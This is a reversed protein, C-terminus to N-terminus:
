MQVHSSSFGYTQSYPGKDAFHHKQKKIHWLNTMARRGLLLYRKIEHSCDSNVTIQLGLFYLREKYGDSFHLDFSCCPIVESQDSHGDDFFACVIFAPSLISFLSGEPM